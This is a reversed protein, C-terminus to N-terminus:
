DCYINRYKHNVFLMYHAQSPRPQSRLTHCTDTACCPTHCHISSMPRHVSSQSKTDCDHTHITTHTQKTSSCDILKYPPVLPLHIRATFATHILRLNLTNPHSPRVRIIQSVATYTSSTICVCEVLEKDCDLPVLGNDREAHKFANTIIGHLDSNLLM